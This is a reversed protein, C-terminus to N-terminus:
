PRGYVEHIHAVPSWDSIPNGRLAMLEINMLGALPSIDSIQNDSLALAEPNTLETLPGIDGIRNLIDVIFFDVKKYNVSNGNKSLLIL